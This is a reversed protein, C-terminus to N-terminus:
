WAESGQSAVEAADDEVSRRKAGCAPAPGKRHRAIVRDNADIISIHSTAKQKDPDPDNSWRGYGQVKKRTARLSERALPSTGKQAFTKEWNIAQWTELHKDQPWTSPAPRSGDPLIVEKTETVLPYRNGEGFETEKAAWGQQWRAQDSRRWMNVVELNKVRESVWAEVHSSKKLDGSVATRAKEVIDGFIAQLRAMDFLRAHIDEPFESHDLLDSARIRPSAVGSERMRRVQELGDRPDYDYVAPNKDTWQGFSTKTGIHKVFEDFSCLSAPLGIQKVTADFEVSTSRSKHFCNVAIKWSGPSDYAMREIKYAKYWSMMEWPLAEMLASSAQVFCLVSLFRM